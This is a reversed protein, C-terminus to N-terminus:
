HVSYTVRLKSPTSCFPSAKWYDLAALLLYCAPAVEVLCGGLLLLVVVYRLGLRGKEVGKKHFGKVIFSAVHPLSQFPHPLKSLM